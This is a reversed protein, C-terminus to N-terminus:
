WQRFTITSGRGIDINGSGVISENNITKLSQHETLFGSDNSLQSTKTPIPTSDPLAGVESATYTPKTSQKAWSPVTPDTENNIFGSDNNLESVKTPVSINVTKNTITQEANNVKIVEIVNEEGGGGGSGIADQVEESLDSMPIGGNPKTYYSGLEYHRVVEWESETYITWGSPVINANWTANDNKILIGTAAVGTTWNRVPRYEGKYTTLTTFLAKIFSLNSCGKFMEQYYVNSSLPFESALLDPAKTLSTCNEFMGIYCGPSLVTAKLQPPEVLNSCDQFMGECCTDSLTNLEIKPSKTLSTCGGFMRLYCSTEAITAPLDPAKLLSTCNHFMDTYCLTQLTTAPLEPANVLYICDGFLSNYCSYTTNDPLILNKADKVKSYMFVRAFNEYGSLQNNIKFLDSHILSMINGYVIFQALQTETTSGFQGIRTNYSFNSFSGKWRVKDETVVQVSNENIWEGGNKSYYIKTDSGTPPTFQFIGDELAEFTLYQDKYAVPISVGSDMPNGSDDFVAINGQIAESDKAAKTNILEKVKDWFLTLRRLTINRLETEM